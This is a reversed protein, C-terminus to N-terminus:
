DDFLHDTEAIKQATEVPISLFAALSLANQEPEDNQRIVSLHEFAADRIRDTEQTFDRRLTRVLERRMDENGGPGTLGLREAHALLDADSFACQVDLIRVTAKDGAFDEIIDFM